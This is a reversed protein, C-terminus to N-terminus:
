FKKTLLEEDDYGALPGTNLLTGIWRNADDLHEKWIADRKVLAQILKIHGEELPTVKGQAWLRELEEDSDDGEIPAKLWDIALKLPEIPLDTIAAIKPADGEKIAVSLDFMGNLWETEEERTKFRPFEEM